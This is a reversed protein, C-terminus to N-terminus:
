LKGEQLVKGSFIFSCVFTPEAASILNYGFGLELLIYKSCLKPEFIVAM